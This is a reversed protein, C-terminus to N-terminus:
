LADLLLVHGGAAGRPLDDTRPQLRLRKRGKDPPEFLYIYLSRGGTGHVECLRETRLDYCHREERSKRRPPVSRRQTPMLEILLKIVLALVFFPILPRWTAELVAELPNAKAAEALLIACGIM